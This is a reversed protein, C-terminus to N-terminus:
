DFRIQEVGNIQLKYLQQTAVSVKNSKDAVRGSANKISSIFDIFICRIYPEVDYPLKRHISNIYVDADKKNHAQVANNFLREIEEFKAQNLKRYM